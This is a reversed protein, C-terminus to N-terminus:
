RLEAPPENRTSRPPKDEAALGADGHGETKRDRRERDIWYALAAVMLLTILAGSAVTLIEITEPAAEPTM